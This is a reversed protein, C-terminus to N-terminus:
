KKSQKLSKYLSLANIRQEPTLYTNRSSMALGDPERVTPFGVIKIDFNLDKVMRRIVALQQYDKSGFIAIHPRVINFLKLVVTAVGRFFTPRSIGCLHKPLNELEVYTQFGDQYLDNKGPYFIVDVSEKRLLEFDRDFDKPYSEFDEGPSFQTPNVFISVVLNDGLKRGEKILSLHGEHLFGMTPVFAVTKGLSRMRDSYEQMETTTTIVKINHM